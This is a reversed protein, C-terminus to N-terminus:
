VLRKKSKIIGNKNCPVILNPEFEYRNSRPIYKTELRPLKRINTQLKGDKNFHYRFGINSYKDYLKTLNQIHLKKRTVEDVIVSEDSGVCKAILQRCIYSPIRKSQFQLVFDYDDYGDGNAAKMDEDFFISANFFKPINGVIHIGWPTFSWTFDLIWHNQVIDMNNCNYKKFPSILPVLPRILGVKEDSKCLDNLFYKSDYYPYFITDDDMIMMYDYENSYLYELLVNRAKAAGIGSDYQITEIDKSVSKIRDIDMRSYAQDIDIIKIDPYTIQLYELQKLHKKIRIERLSFDSPLYSIIGICYSTMTHIKRLM